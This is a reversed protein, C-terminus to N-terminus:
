RSGSAVAGKELVLWQNDLDAMLSLSSRFHAYESGPRFTKRTVCYRDAYILLRGTQNLNSSFELFPCAYSFPRNWPVWDFGEPLQIVVSNTVESSSFYDMPYSRTALSANSADYNIWLNRFALLQDSVRLAADPIKYQLTLVVPANLDNLDSLAFSSLRAKPHVRKVLREAYNQRDKAKASRMGRMGTEFPGRFRRLDSVEMSGDEALKVFIQQETRNLAPGGEPLVTFQFREGVLFAANAGQFEPTLHGLPLYDSDFSIFLDSEDIHVRLVADSAAGLSGLKETFTTDKWSSALGIEAPIGLARLAHYMLVARAFPSGYRKQLTSEASPADYGPYDYCNIDVVRIRRLIAEYLSRVQMAPVTSSAVGAEALFAQLRSPSPAAKDLAAKFQRSIDSWPLKMTVLLRPFIRGRSSMNQEPIFGKRDSYSWTLLRNGSATRTESFRPTNTATWQLQEIVIELQPPVELVFEELLFPEQWGYTTDILYPRLADIKSTEIRHCVDIVSGLDVKKLAFKLKKLRDYEPMTSFIGEESLADDTLHHVRGDAGYTHAFVLDLKERDAAFFMSQNALDLGPEKLVKVLRRKEYSASGDAHFVVRRRNLLTVYDNDPFEAAEPASALINRVLPDTISAVTSIEDGPRIRSFLVHAVEAPPFTKITGDVERFTVAGSAVSELQGIHEEGENLYLVDARAATIFFFSSLALSLVLFLRKM